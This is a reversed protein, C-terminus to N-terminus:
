RGLVDCSGDDCNPGNAAASSPQTRKAAETRAREFVDVLTQPAQAGSVGYKEDVLFFPVGTVGFQRAEAQDRRVEDAFRDGDIMERAEEEDLGAEGAIKALEDPESIPRGEVMYASLLREKMEGQLGKEKALHILRHADLTNGGKASDFNFDLGEKAATDTMQTLMQRARDIDVRYKSALAEDLPGEHKKAASPDLEFSRWEIDVEEDFQDLASELRRKGIYCWPCVIDSWVEIKM